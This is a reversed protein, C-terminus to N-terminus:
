DDVSYLYFDDWSGWAKATASAEVGITITTEEELVIGTIEPNEWNKWGNPFTDCVLKEGNVIAYLQYSDNEGADGGQFYVGLTYTGAPLTIDQSLTYSFDEDDWFHLCMSGSKTNNTENRIGASDEPTDTLTWMSTDADEFGPNQIQNAKSIIVNCSVTYETDDAAVTGTIQYTGVGQEVAEDIQDQNWSIVATGETGDNYLVNAQEPLLIDDGQGVELEQEDLTVVDVLLLARTGTRIYSFIKLSELPHGTFDFLAQNDVASGGYWQGADDPDYEGAYSTAWGSGFEEWIAKNEELVAEKEEDTGEYVQVPIWAPEWYFVGIGGDIGAVAAFVDRLENAQGQVSPSYNVDIGSTGEGITNSSGDGEEYTYLWSTEAVMVKKGYTEAVDSLVNSLNDITGHWYPYYSSAFVDYDVGYTDLKSAYDSYRNATEPNAFHLVVQIEQNTDRVAQSGASFLKAMEEWDDTGCFSGNTENGIQVMGVDVNAAELQDLSDKTFAYLADAKEDITMGSWAKPEMQKSPDAWFDSYHFNIMVKMGANTAYQGMEIARSLDCNGGGYGNGQADYPDNWVRIRVYNVGCEALLDFFGQRDLANGDFDYFVVGSDVLSLYSSIDVGEAFDESLNAIKEVYIGADVATDTEEEVETEPEADQPSSVPATTEEESGAAEQSGCGTLAVCAMGLLMSGALFLRTMKHFLKKKMM